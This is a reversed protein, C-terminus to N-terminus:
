GEGGALVVLPRQVLSAVREGLPEGAQACRDFEDGAVGLGVPEVADLGAGVEGRGGDAGGVGSAGGGGGCGEGEGAVEVAGGSGTWAGAPGKLRSDTEASPLDAVPGPQTSMFPPRTMAM